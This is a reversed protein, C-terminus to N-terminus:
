DVMELLSKAYDRADELLTATCSVSHKGVTHVTMEQGDWRRRVKDGPHLHDLRHDYRRVSRGHRLVRRLLTIDLTLFLLILLAIISYTIYINM